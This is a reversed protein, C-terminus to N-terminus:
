IARYKFAYWNRGCKKTHGIIRDYGMCLKLSLIASSKAWECFASGKVFIFIIEFNLM